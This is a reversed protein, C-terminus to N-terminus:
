GPTVEPGPNLYDGRRLLHTKAEGPLDYFARVEPPAPHKAREAQLAQLTQVHFVGIRGVGIVGVHLRAAAM